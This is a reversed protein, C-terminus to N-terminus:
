LPLAPMGVRVSLACARPLPALAPWTSACVVLVASTLACVGTVTVSPLLPVAVDGAMVAKGGVSVMVVLVVLSRTKVPASRSAPLALALADSTSVRFTALPVSLAVPLSLM